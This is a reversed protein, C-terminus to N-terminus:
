QSAHWSASFIKRALDCLRVKAHYLKVVIHDGVVTLVGIFDDGRQAGFELRLAPVGHGLDETGAM